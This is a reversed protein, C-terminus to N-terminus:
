AAAGRRRGRGAGLVLLGVAALGLAGAAGWPDFRSRRAAPAPVAPLAPARALPARDAAQIADLVPFAREAASLAAAALSQALLDAATLNGRLHDFLSGLTYPLDSRGDGDLDPADHGSWYNGDFVTDTRRAYLTLPSLNGLFANGEFRNEASSGYLVIAVDSEAIVNRRFVNRRSGELFIGRANDAILNDEAVSDDLDKFLLGVSAFGRNHLFQNRRFQIRKSFMLVGGAASREFLNDEFLNDDSNMYHLGYRLDRAANGRIVGRSANQIYFGDRAEAIDNGTFTFGDTNWVHIGSGKEGAERGPIGRIVNDAVVAGPAQRLYVGFLANGIRCGRVVADPAAVHVGSSDATLDGGALGDIDFGEVVVGPARVRVVSGRGSGVLRPRGRGQLRLPRDLYLDGRYEGPEVEVVEGAAAADIRAQLPSAEAPPPRGELAGPLIPEMEGAAAVLAALLSPAIM